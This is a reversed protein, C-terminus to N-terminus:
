PAQYHYTRLQLQYGDDKYSVGNVNLYLISSEMAQLLKKLNEYSGGQLKLTVDTGKLRSDALTFNDGQAERNELSSVKFGNNEALANLQMALNPFDFKEPLALDVLAKEGAAIEEPPIKQYDSLAAALSNNEEKLSALAYNKSWWYQQCQVDIIQMYGVFLVAVVILVIILPYFEHIFARMQSSQRQEQHDM